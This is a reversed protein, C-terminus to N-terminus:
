SSINRGRRNKKGFFIFNSIFLFSMVYLIAFTMLFSVLDFGINKVAKIPDNINTEPIITDLSIGFARQGIFEGGSETYALPLNGKFKAFLFAILLCLLGGIIAVVLPQVLSGFVKRKM